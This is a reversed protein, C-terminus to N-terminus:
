FMKLQNTNSKTLEAFMKDNTSLLHAMCGSYPCKVEEVSQVLLGNEELKDKYRCASPQHIEFAECVLRSTTTIYKLVLFFLSEDTYKIRIESYTLGTEKEIIERTKNILLETDKNLRKHLATRSKNTM